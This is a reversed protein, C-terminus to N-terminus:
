SKVVLLFGYALSATTMLVIPVIFFSTLSIISLTVAAAFGILFSKWSNQGWQALGFALLLTGMAYSFGSSLAEFSILRGMLNIRPTQVAALFAEDQVPEALQMFVETGLHGAGTVIFCLAAIRSLRLLSHLTNPRNLETFVNM